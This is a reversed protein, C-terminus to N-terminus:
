AERRLAIWIDKDRRALAHQELTALAADRLDRSRLTKPGIRLMATESAQAGRQKLLWAYLRMANIEAQAQDRDGFISRWTDLSYGILTAARAAHEVDVVDRRDFVALVGAVRFLHETARLAFARVATLSGGDLKAEIELREFFRGALQYAADDFEIAPQGSCDEGLPVLLETCRSWYRGIRPDRDPRFPDARRPALPEPWAVIFRPWFGINSLVPDQLATRAADPQVLWHISLRRDYLQLRGSLARSVSLEGNDWLSNFGAGTKIRNDASMGYGALVAGGEATFAGQSPQGNAFDRRVGEITPDRMLLYPDPPVAPPADGKKRPTSMLTDVLGKHERTRERQYQEIPRTAVSDAASKGDASLAITLLYLSLPKIGAFTRVDARSQTLLAAAALLSQGAMAPDVQGKDAIALAAEGLVEGLAQVPYSPVEPRVTGLVECAAEILAKQAKEGLIRGQEGARPSDSVTSQRPDEGREGREGTKPAERANELGLARRYDIQKRDTCHEHQCAFNGHQHGNTFPLMYVTSSDGDHHGTSHTDEFPCRIAFKGNGMDRIVRGQDRLAILVPDNTKLDGLPSAREPEDPVSALAQDVRVPSGDFRWAKAGSRATYLPQDAHECKADHVVPVGAVRSLGAAVARCLRRYETPTAARDLALFIRIKFLGAEPRHSYTTYAFGQWREAAEVIAAMEIADGIKDLDLAVFAVPLVSEANRRGDRLPGCIFPGDKESHDTGLVADALADFDGSHQRLDTADHKNRGISYSVPITYVESM